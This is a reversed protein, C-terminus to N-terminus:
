KGFIHCWNQFMNPPQYINNETNNIWENLLYKNLMLQTGALTRPGSSVTTFSVFDQGWTTQTRSPSCQRLCIILCHWSIPNHHSTSSPHHGQYHSPNTHLTFRNLFVESPTISSCLATHLLPLGHPHGLHPGCVYPIALPHSLPLPASHSTPSGCPSRHHQLSPRWLPFLLSRIPSLDRPALDQLTKYAM